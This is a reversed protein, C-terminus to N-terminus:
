ELRAFGTKKFLKTSRRAEPVAFGGRWSKNQLALASTDTARGSLLGSSSSQAEDLKPTPLAAGGARTKCLSLPPTLPEAV